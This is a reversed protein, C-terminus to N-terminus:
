NEEDDEDSEEDDDAIADEEEVEGDEESESDAELDLELQEDGDEDGMVDDENEDDADVGNYIQDALRIKEQDMLDSMKVTIVDNFTKNARNFDQDLAQNILEKVAESM